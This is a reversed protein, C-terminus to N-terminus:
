PHSYHFPNSCGPEDIISKAYNQDAVFATILEGAEVVAIAWQGGPMPCVYRDRGDSCSWKCYENHEMANIYEWAQSAAAQHQQVAHPSLHPLAAGLVLVGVLALAVALLLPFSKGPKRMTLTAM